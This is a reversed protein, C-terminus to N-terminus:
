RYDLVNIDERM